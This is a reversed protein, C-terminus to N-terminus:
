FAREVYTVCECGNAHMSHASPTGRPTGPSRFCARAALEVPPWPPSEPPPLEGYLRKFILVMIRSGGLVVWPLGFDGELIGRSQVSIGRPAVIEGLPM